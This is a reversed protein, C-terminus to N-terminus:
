FLSLLSVYQFIFFLNGQSRPWCSLFLFYGIAQSAVCPAL